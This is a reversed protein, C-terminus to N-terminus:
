AFDILWHDITSTRVPRICGNCFPLQKEPFTVKLNSFRAQTQFDHHYTADDFSSQMRHEITRLFQKTITHSGLSGTNQSLMTLNATLFHFRGSQAIIRRWTLCSNELNSRNQVENVISAKPLGLHAAQVAVSNMGALSNLPMMWWHYHDPMRRKRKDAATIATSPLPHKVYLPPYMPWALYVLDSFKLHEKEATDVGIKALWHEDRLM